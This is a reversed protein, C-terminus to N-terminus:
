ADSPNVTANLAAPTEPVSLAEPTNKAGVM